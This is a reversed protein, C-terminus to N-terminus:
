LASARTKLPEEMSHMVQCGQPPLSDVQDASAERLAHPHPKAGLVSEGESNWRVVFFPLLMSAHVLLM